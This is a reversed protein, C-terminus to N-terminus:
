QLMCAAKGESVKCYQSGFPYLILYPRRKMDTKQAVNEIRKRKELVEHDDEDKLIPLNSVMVDLLSKKPDASHYIANIVKDSEFMELRYLFVFYTNAKQIKQNSQISDIFNKSNPCMPDIFVYAKNWGSGFVIADSEITQLESRSPESWLLTAILFLFLIKM